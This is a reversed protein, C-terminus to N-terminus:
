GVRTARCRSYKRAPSVREAQGAPGRIRVIEANIEVVRLAVEVEAQVVCVAVPEAAADGRAVDLSDVEAPQAAADVVQADVAVVAGGVEVGRM